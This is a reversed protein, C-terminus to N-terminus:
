ENKVKRENMWHVNISQLDTIGRFFIGAMDSIQNDVM